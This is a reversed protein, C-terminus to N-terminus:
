LYLITCSSKWSSFCIFHSKCLFFFLFCFPSSLFICPQLYCCEGANVARHALWPSLLCCMNKFLHSEELLQLLFSQLPPPHGSKSQLSLFLFFSVRLLNWFSFMFRKWHEVLCLSMTHAGAFATLTM